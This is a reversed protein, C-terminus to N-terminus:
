RDDWRRRRTGRDDDLDDDPEDDDRDRRRRRSEPSYDDEDADRDDGDFEDDGRDYKRAFRATSDSLETLLKAYKVVGILGVILGAILLLSGVCAGAVVGGGPAAGPGPGGGPGPVIGGGLILGAFIGGYGFLVCAGAAIFLKLVSAADESLHRRRIFEALKMMFMLFLVVAAIQILSGGAAAAIKAAPPLLQTGLNDVNVLIGNVLGCVEFVVSLTIRAKAGQAEPPIALCFIRGVLGMINGVFALVMVLGMVVLIPVAPGFGGGGGPGAAAAGLFGAFLGGVVGLVVATVNVMLGWFVLKLGRSVKLLEDTM